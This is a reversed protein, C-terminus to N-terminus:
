YRCRLREIIYEAVWIPSTLVIFCLLALPVLKLLLLGMSASKIGVEIDIKGAKAM